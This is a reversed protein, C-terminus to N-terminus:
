NTTLRGPLAPRMLPVWTDDTDSVTAHLRVLCFGQLANLFL